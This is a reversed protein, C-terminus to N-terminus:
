SFEPRRTHWDTAQEFAYATQLIAPEGLSPGLLQLGVPMGDSFGCPVSMGCIGGLNAAITFVDALYM